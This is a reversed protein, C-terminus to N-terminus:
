MGEHHSTVIICLPMIKIKIDLEDDGVFTLTAM